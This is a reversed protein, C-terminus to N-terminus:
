TTLTKRIGEKTLGTHLNNVKPSIDGIRSLSMNCKRLVIWKAYKLEKKGKVFFKLRTFLSEYAMSLAIFYANPIFSITLVVPLLFSKLTKYSAFKNVDNFIDIIAFTIFTVGILVLISNMVLGVSQYEEKVESYASLITILILIPVLIIETILSFNHTNVIFQYIATLKFIDLM